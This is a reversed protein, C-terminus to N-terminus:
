ANGELAPASVRPAIRDYHHDLAMCMDDVVAQFENFDLNQLQQAGSLVVQHGNLSYSSHLLESNLELLLQFLAERDGINADLEFMQISFLVIPDDIQVGLQANKASEPHLVWTGEAIQEYPLGSNILFSELQDNSSM